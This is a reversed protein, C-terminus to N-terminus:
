VNGRFWAAGSRICGGFALLINNIDMKASGSIMEVLWCGHNNWWMLAM